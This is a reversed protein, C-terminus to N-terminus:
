ICMCTYVYVHMSYIYIYIGYASVIRCLILTAYGKYGRRLTPKPSQLRLPSSCVHQLHRTRAYGVNFHPYLPTGSLRHLITEAYRIVYIYIYIYIHIYISTYIYIYIYVCVYMCVNAVIEGVIIEPSVVQNNSCYTALPTFRLNTNSIITPPITAM